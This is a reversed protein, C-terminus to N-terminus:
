ANVHVACRAHLQTPAAGAPLLAGHDAVGLLLGGRQRGGRHPAHRGLRPLTDNGFSCDHPRTHANALVPVGRFAIPDEPQHWCGWFCFVHHRKTCSGLRCADSVTSAALAKNRLVTCTSGPSTLARASGSLLPQQVDHVARCDHTDKYLCRSTVRIYKISSRALTFGYTNLAASPEFM